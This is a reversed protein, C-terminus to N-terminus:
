RLLQVFGKVYYEKENTGKGNVYYYYVGDPCNQGQKNQGNWGNNDNTFSSMEIGWRNFVTCSFESIFSKEIIFQDNINDGNPTFINPCVLQPTIDVLSVDDIIYYNTSDMINLYAPNTTTGFDGIYLTNISTSDRFNGIVLFEEGGSAVLTGAIRTWALTDVVFFNDPSEFQPQAVIPSQNTFSGLAAMSCVLTGINAVAYEQHNAPNLFFEIACM